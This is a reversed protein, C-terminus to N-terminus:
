VKRAALQKAVWWIHCAPDRFGVRLNDDDAKRLPAQVAEADAAIARDYPFQADSVYRHLHVESSRYPTAGGGIMVISDDIRLEAHMLSGVPRDFRRVM